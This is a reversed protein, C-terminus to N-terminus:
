FDRFITKKCERTHSLRRFLTFRPFRRERDAWKEIWGDFLVDRSARLTLHHIEHTSVMVVLCVSCMLSCFFLRNGSTESLLEMRWSVCNLLFIPLNNVFECNIQVISSDIISKALDWDIRNHHQKHQKTHNIELQLFFKFIEGNLKSSSHSAM